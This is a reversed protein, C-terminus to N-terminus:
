GVRGWVAFEVLRRGSLMSVGKMAIALRVHLARLLAGDLPLPAYPSARGTRRWAKPEFLQMPHAQLVGVIQPDAYLEDALLTPGYELVACKSPVHPTGLAGQDSKPGV